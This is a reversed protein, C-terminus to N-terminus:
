PRSTARSSKWDTESCVNKSGDPKWYRTSAALASSLTQSAAQAPHFKAAALGFEPQPDQRELRANGAPNGGGSAAVLLAAIVLNMSVKLKYSM